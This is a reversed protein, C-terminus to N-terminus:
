CAYIAVGVTAERDSREWKCMVSQLRIIRGDQVRGVQSTFFRPDSLDDIDFPLRSNAPLGERM